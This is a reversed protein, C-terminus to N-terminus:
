MVQLRRELVSVSTGDAVKNDRNMRDENLLKCLEDEFEEVSPQLLISLKDIYCPVTRQVKPRRFTDVAVFFYHISGIFTTHFPVM